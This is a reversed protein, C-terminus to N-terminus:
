SDLQIVLSAINRIRLRKEEDEKRRSCGAFRGEMTEVFGKKRRMSNTGRLNFHFDM